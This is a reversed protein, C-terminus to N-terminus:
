GAPIVVPSYGGGPDVSVPGTNIPLSDPNYVGTNNNGGYNNLLNGGAYAASGLANNYANATGMVGSANANGANMLSNAVGAGTATAAAGTGSSAANGLGAMSLLQNIYSNYQTSAAGATYSGLAGLTNSSYLSGNASAARNIANQGQTLSFQYGPTNYFSSYNANPSNGSPTSGAPGGVGGIGYINGLMNAAGQGLQVQPAFNAQTTNFMQLQAAAGANAANATTNAASKVANGTIVAGGVGAVVAATALGWIEAM